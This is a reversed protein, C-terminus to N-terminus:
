VSYTRCLQKSKELQERLRKVEKKEADLENEIRGCQKTSKDKKNDYLVKVIKSELGKIIAIIEANNAHSELENPRHEGCNSM